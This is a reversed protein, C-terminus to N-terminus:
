KKLPIAKSFTSWHGASNREAVTATDRVSQEVLNWKKLQDYYTSRRPAPQGFVQKFREEFGGPFKEKKLHHMEQFGAVM